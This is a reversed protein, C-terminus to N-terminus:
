RRSPTDRAPGDPLFRDLWAITREYLRIENARQRPWHGEDPFELYDVTKGAHRMAEVMARAETPPCRPDHGGATFLTPARIRDLYHIPSLKEFLAVGEPTAPDGMKWRDYKQLNGRETTTETLWNFYGVISVGVSWLDPAQQLCHATLYGGHSTGLVGLRGAPVIGKTLLWRGGAITDQADIEGLRRDASRRWTRGYGSGGRYNPYLVTFGQSVLFQPAYDGSDWENLTQSEPGGHPIVIGARRSGKRPVYLWAPISTGDPAPYRVLKPTAFEGVPLKTRVTDVITTRRAGRQLVLRWPRVATSHQYFLGKGDRHWEARTAVGEAPSVPRRGRGDRRVTHLRINGDRNELFALTTGDPSWLPRSADHAGRVPWGIDRAALDLIGISQRDHVTSVFALSGGDPSWPEAPGYDATFGAEADPFSVLRETRGALDVQAIWDRDGTGVTFAISAGDPRWALDSVIDEEFTLQRAEGGRADVVFVNERDGRRNSVFAITTGDPSWRPSADDMPDDTLKRAPGGKAPVVFIDHNEDGEFDSQVALWAGDPSFEPSSVSEKTRLAPHERGTRLDRVLVTWQDKRRVGYALLRGDRSVDYNRLDWIKPLFRRPAYAVKRAM